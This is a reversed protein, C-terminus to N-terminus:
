KQTAPWDDPPVFGHGTPLHDAPPAVDTESTLQAAHEAPEHKASALV